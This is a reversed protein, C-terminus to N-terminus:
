LLRKLIPFINQLIRPQADINPHIGDDQFLAPNDAFGALMFPVLAAGFRDATEAFLAQFQAVYGPGYNPPVRMGILLVKAGQLRCLKVIASLNERIMPIAAGRLGDNAGLEVIVVAPQHRDLLAKIRRKGGGTTEGSISANVVSFPKKHEVLQQELLAVWGTNSPLGYGASLSDGVILINAALCQSAAVVFFLFTSVKAVVKFSM